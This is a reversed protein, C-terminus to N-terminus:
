EPNDDHTQRNKESLLTSITDTLKWFASISMDLKKLGHLFTAERGQIM